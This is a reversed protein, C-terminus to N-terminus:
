TQSAPHKFLERLLIIGGIGTAILALIYGALSVLVLMWPWGVPETEGSALGTIVALAQGGFLSAVAVGLGWGILSRQSHVRWAAWFLLLGGTLAVPFLEAPILYDFRLVGGQIFSIASLFVPALIPFWVLVTGAIALAKTLPGKTEM